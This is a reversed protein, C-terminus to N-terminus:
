LGYRKAQQVISPVLSCHIYTFPVESQSVNVRCQVYLFQPFIEGIMLGSLVDLELGEQTPRSQLTFNQRPALIM